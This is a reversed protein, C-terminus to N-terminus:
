LDVKRVLIAFDDVGEDVLDINEVDDGVGMDFVFILHREPVEDDELVHDVEHSDCM